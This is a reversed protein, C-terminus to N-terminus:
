CFYLSNLAAICYVKTCPTLFGVFLAAVTRDHTM